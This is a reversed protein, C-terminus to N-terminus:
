RGKKAVKVYELDSISYMGADAAAKRYDKDAAAGGQSTKTADIWQLVSSQPVKRHGGQSTVSGALKDADILMAVYPRSCGMLQAAEETSLMVESGGNAVIALHIQVATRLDKASQDQGDLLDHLARAILSSTTPQGWAQLKEALSLAMTGLTDSSLRNSKLTTTM